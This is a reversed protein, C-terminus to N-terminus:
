AIIKVHFLFAWNATLVHFSNLTHEGNRLVDTSLQVNRHLRWFFIAVLHNVLGNIFPALKPFHGFYNWNWNNNKHSFVSLAFFFLLVCVCYYCYFWFKYLQDSQKWNRMTIKGVFIRIDFISRRCICINTDVYICIVNVIAPCVAHSDICICLIINDTHRVTHTHTCLCDFIM